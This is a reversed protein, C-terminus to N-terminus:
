TQETIPVIGGPKGFGIDRLEEDVCVWTRNQDAPLAFEAAGPGILGFHGHFPTMEWLLITGILDAVRESTEHTL